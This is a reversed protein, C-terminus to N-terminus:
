GEHDVYKKVHDDWSPLEAYAGDINPSIKSKNQHPICCCIRRNRWLDAASPKRPDLGYHTFQLYRPRTTSIDFLGYVLNGAPTQRLSIGSSTHYVLKALRFERVKKLETVLARGGIPLDNSSTGGREVMTFEGIYRKLELAM